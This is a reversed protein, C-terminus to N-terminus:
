VFNGFIAIFIKQKTTIADAIKVVSLFPWLFMPFFKLTRVKRHHIIMETTVYDINYYCLDQGSFPVAVSVGPFIETDTGKPPSMTYTTIADAIKVM